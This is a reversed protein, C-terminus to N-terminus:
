VVMLADIHDKKYIIVVLALLVRREVAIKALVVYAIGVINVVSGGSDIQEIYTRCVLVKGLLCYIGVQENNVYSGNGFIAQM